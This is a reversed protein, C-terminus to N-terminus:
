GANGAMTIRADFTSCEVTTRTAEGFARRFEGRGDRAVQEGSAELCFPGGVRDGSHSGLDQESSTARSICSM